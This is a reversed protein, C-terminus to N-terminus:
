SEGLLHSSITGCCCNARDVVPLSTAQHIDLKRRSEAKSDDISCCASAPRMIEEVQIESPQRDDTAVGHCTDRETVVGILRLSQEDEVIPTCGCGTKHMSQAANMATDRPSCCFNQAMPEMKDRCCSM